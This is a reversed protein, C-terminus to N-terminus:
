RLYELASRAMIETAIPLAEEDLDFNPSHHPATIGKETSAAGVMFYCGPAEQLFLSMDDSVPMLEAEVTREKGVVDEAIRRVFATVEADNVVAPCGRVHTFEAEGRMASAVGQFVQQIRALVFQQVEENFTRVTGTLEVETPIINFASGGHITGFTIVAPQTPAVERSIVTQVATVAQATMTVPDRSLHPLAGHGGQGRVVVKFEDASAWYAGERLAVIGAPLTSMFHFGIVRDPRPDRLAGEQIMKKAGAMIEEAPQFLFMVRGKLERRWKALVAAVTLAVATHGDHGCAHMRGPNRSAYPRDGKEQVPLADIDARLMLTPGPASGQLLGVVGTGAIGTRVGLGLKGLRETILRATREEKFSVEPHM